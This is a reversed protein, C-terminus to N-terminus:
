SATAARARTEWGQELRTRITERLAELDPPEKVPFFRGRPGERPVRLLALELLPRGQADPVASAECTISELQLAARGDVKKRVVHRELAIERDIASVKFLFNNTSFDPLREQQFAPPFRFGEVIQLRGDVYAPAGGKDWEGSATRRKETVEASMDAGMLLHYGIIAPDITAGLNDVNSFSVLEVGRRRLEALVGSGRIADFFDGHGPAYYSPKDDDGIFLSGDPNLRLSVSQQFTLVDERPLGFSSREAIHQLTAADTAFSNMLVFPIRAGFTEAARRVDGGKLSIFTEGGFLEVVGKVVGGFRTAMGGNIVLVAVKGRRLAERGARAHAELDEASATVLDLTDTGRTPTIREAAILSTRESLSGSAIGEVSRRFSGEDFRYRRLFDWDIRPDELPHGM